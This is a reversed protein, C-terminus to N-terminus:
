LQLSGKCSSAQEQVLSLGRSQHSLIMAWLRFFLFSNNICYFLFCSVRFEEEREGMDDRRGKGEERGWGGEPLEVAINLSCASKNDHFASCLTHQPSFSLLNGERGRM